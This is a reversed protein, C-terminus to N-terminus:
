LITHIFITNVLHFSVQEEAKFPPASFNAALNEIREPSETASDEEVKKEADHVTQYLKMMVDRSVARPLARLRPALLSLCFLTFSDEEKEKQLETLISMGLSNLISNPAEEATPKQESSKQKESERKSKEQMKECQKAAKIHAQLRKRNAERCEELGKSREIKDLQKQSLKGLDDSSSVNEINEM